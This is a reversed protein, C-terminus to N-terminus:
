YKELRQLDEILVQAKNVETIYAAMDPACLWCSPDGRSTELVGRAWWVVKSIDTSNILEVELLIDRLKDEYPTSM